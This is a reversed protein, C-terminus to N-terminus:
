DIRFTVTTIYGGVVPQGDAGIAPRFRGERLYVQCSRSDLAANGSTRVVLCDSVHGDIGILLRVIAIGEAENRLAAFPYDGDNFPTGIPVPPSRLRARAAADMGWDALTRAFCERLAGVARGANPFDLTLVTREGRMLRLHNAQAFRDLFSPGLGLFAVVPGARALQGTVAEGEVPEGNGPSLLIRASQGNTFPTRRWSRSTVLLEVRQTGPIARLAFNVADPGNDRALSCYVQGHDVNWLPPSPAAAPQARLHGSLAAVLAVMSLSEAIKLRRMEGQRIAQIAGERLREFRVRFM